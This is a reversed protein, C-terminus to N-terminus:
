LLKHDGGPLLQPCVPTAGLKESAECVVNNHTGIKLHVTFVANHITHSWQLKIYFIFNGAM